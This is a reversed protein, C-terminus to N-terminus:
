MRLLRNRITTETVGLHEGVAANSGLQEKLKILNISDWDVRSRSKAWCESSCFKSTVNKLTGCQPCEDKPKTEKYEAYEENFYSRSADIEHMGDHVEMHCNHCLLVCKRLEAVIKHWSVPNARIAGFSLDKENPDIHHLALAATCTDYGCIQCRGGMAEIIRNKTRKRWEKVHKAQSM